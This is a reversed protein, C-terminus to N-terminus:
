VKVNLGISMSRRTPTADVPLLEKYANEYKDRLRGFEKLQEDSKETETKGSHLKIKAPDVLMRQYIADYCRFYVYYRTADDISSAAVGSLAGYSQNLWVTVRATLEDLSQQATKKPFLFPELLGNPAIFDNVGLAM